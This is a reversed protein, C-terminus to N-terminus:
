FSQVGNFHIPLVTVGHQLARNAAIKVAAEIEEHSYRPSFHACYLKKVKAQIALDVMEDLTGHSDRGRDEARLFTTDAIWVGAERIDDIAIKNTSDLTYVMEYGKYDYMLKARDVSKDRLLAVIDQGEYEPRLRKRNNVHRYGLSLSPTHYTRFAEINNPLIEGADIEHWTIQFPLGKGYKWTDVIYDHMRYVERCGKPCFISLPKDRDGMSLARIGIFGILGAIHDTHGHSLFINEVAYVKKGLFSSCGEGCDFLSRSPSHFFWSTYLGKSFGIFNSM